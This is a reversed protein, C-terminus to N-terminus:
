SLLNLIKSIHYLYVEDPDLHVFFRSLYLHCAPSLRRTLRLKTGIRSVPPKIGLYFEKRSGVHHVAIKRTFKVLQAAKLHENLVIAPFPQLNCRLAISPVATHANQDVPVVVLSPLTNHTDSASSVVIECPCPIIDSQIPHLTEHYLDASLKGSLCLPLCM